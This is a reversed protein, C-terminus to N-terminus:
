NQYDKDYDSKIVQFIIDFPATKNKKVYYMFIFFICFLYNKKSAYYQLSSGDLYHYQSDCQKYRSRFPLLGPM